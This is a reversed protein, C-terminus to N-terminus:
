VPIESKRKSGQRTIPPFYRDRFRLVPWEILRSVLYGVLINSVLYIASYFLHPAGQILRTRFFNAVGFGFSFHFLYIGYSYQGLWAMWYLGPSSFYSEVARFKLSLVLFLTVFIGYSIYTASLGLTNMWYSDINWVFLPAILLCATIFLTYRFKLVWEEFRAFHFHFFYSILIGFMLADIRLYTPFHHTLLSFSPNNNYNIIRIAPCFLMFFLCLLPVLKRDPISFVIWYCLAIFLYFQEEVGLSWSIAMVGPTYNQYFFVEACIQSASAPNGKLYFYGIHLVLTVYFLPWIKLGRRLLFRLPKVAGTEKFEKFLIGSIFFGSLVFFLDVGSWGVKVFMDTVQYHELMVLLVAIGRLFDLSKYRKQFLL